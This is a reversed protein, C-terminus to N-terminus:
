EVHKILYAHTLLKSFKGLDKTMSSLPCHCSLARAAESVQGYMDVCGWLAIKNRGLLFELADDRDDLGMQTWM